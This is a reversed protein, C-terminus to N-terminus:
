VIRVDRTRPEIEFLFWDIFTRMALPLFERDKSSLWASYNPEGGVELLYDSVGVIEDDRRAGVDFSTYFKNTLGSLGFSVYLVGVPYDFHSLVGWMEIKRAGPSLYTEIAREIVNPDRPDL